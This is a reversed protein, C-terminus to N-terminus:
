EAGVLDAPHSQDGMEVIAELLAAREEVTPDSEPHPPFQERTADWTTVETVYDYVLRSFLETAERDHGERKEFRLRAMTLAGVVEPVTVHNILAQGVLLYLAGRAELLSKQIRDTSEEAEERTLGSTDM